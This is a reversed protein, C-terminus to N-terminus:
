TSAFNKFSEAVTMALYVIINFIVCFLRPDNYLKYLKFILFLVFMGPIIDFILFKFTILRFYISLTPNSNFFKMLCKQLDIGDQVIDAIQFKNFYLTKLFFLYSLLLEIIYINVILIILPEDSMEMIKGFMYRYFYIYFLPFGLILLFTHLVGSYFKLYNKEEVKGCQTNFKFTFIGFLIGIYYYTKM